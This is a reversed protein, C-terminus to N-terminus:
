KHPEKEEPETNRIIIRGLINIGNQMTAELHKAYKDLDEPNDFNLKDAQMRKSDGLFRIFDGLLNANYQATSEQKYGIAEKAIDREIRLQNNLSLQKRYELTAEELQQHQVALEAQLKTIKIALM